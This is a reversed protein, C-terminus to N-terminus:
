EVRSKSLSTQMNTWIWFEIAKPDPWIPDTLFTLKCSPKWSSEASKRQSQEPCVERQGEKRWCLKLQSDHLLVRQQHTLYVSSAGSCQMKEPVLVATAPVLPWVSFCFLWKHWPNFKNPSFILHSSLSIAPCPLSLPFILTQHIAQYRFKRCM